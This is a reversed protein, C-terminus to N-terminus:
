RDFPPYAVGDGHRLLHEIRPMWNTREGQILHGVVDFPSWTGEGERGEVWVSPLDLLLDRLVAPTRRLVPVAEDFRFEMARPLTSGRSYCRRVIVKAPTRAIPSCNGPASSPVLQPVGANFTPPRINAQM